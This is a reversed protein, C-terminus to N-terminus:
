TASLEAALMDYVLRIRRSTHLERHTVLWVPYTMPPVDPFVAEVGPTANGIDENMMAVGLGQRLLEWAVTINKSGVRLNSATVPVGMENLASLMAPADGFSIFDYGALAQLTRPRGKENLYSTAAYLRGRGEQVLKATLDPQEPRVHRIAIDADRRTLDTIANDAVIDLEIGPAARRIKAIIPPLLSHCMMDAATIRVLGEIAQSTGSATLSIHQAAEGMARTHVLLEQGADTLALGRGAREFLTVGLAEELGSVQRGLTPQTLGLARAAASFSGEEATAWFARVQNWDFAIATWNM